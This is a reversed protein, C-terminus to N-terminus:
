SCTCYMWRQCNNTDGHPNTHLNGAANSDLYLKTQQNGLHNYGGSNLSLAEWSQDLNWDKDPPKV